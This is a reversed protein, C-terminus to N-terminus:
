NHYSKSICGDYSRYSSEPRKIGIPPIIEYFFNINKHDSEETLRNISLSIKKREKEVLLGKDIM